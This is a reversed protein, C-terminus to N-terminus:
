FNLVMPKESQYKVLIPQLIGAAFSFFTFKAPTMSDEVAAKVNAYSKSSQRKYKPLKQCHAVLKKINHWM